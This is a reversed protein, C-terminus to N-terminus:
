PQNLLWTLVGDNPDELWNLFQTAQIINWNKDPFYRLDNLREALNVIGAWNQNVGAISPDDLRRSLGTLVLLSELDHIEFAQPLALLDLRKCILVKLLIELAYLGSAISAAPRNGTLLVRADEMRDLSAQDLDTLLANFKKLLADGRAMM